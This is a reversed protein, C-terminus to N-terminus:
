LKGIAAKSWYVVTGVELVYRGNIIVHEYIQAVDLFVDLLEFADEPSLHSLFNLIRSIRLYNHNYPTLWGAEESNLVWRENDMVFGLSHMYNTLLSYVNAVGHSTLKEVLEDMDVVPANANFQSKVHSPFAWQIHNHCEEWKVADFALYDAITRGIADTGTGNLFAAAENTGYTNM